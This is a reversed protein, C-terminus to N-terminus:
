ITKEYFKIWKRIANDSVGYKRGTALYGLERIDKLLVEYEPREVKRREPKARHRWLPDIVKKEKEERPKRPKKPKKYDGYKVYKIGTVKTLGKSGNHGPAQTHCNPCLFRLNELTDNLWDRNIHDVQLRLEKNNWNPGLGCEECLYERGSEILSRRLRFASERKGSERKILVEKWHKKNNSPKGRNSGKGLFHSTNIGYEKITRSIHSHIGGSECVGLKRLVQAVSTSEKCLPELLEKTYKQNHM